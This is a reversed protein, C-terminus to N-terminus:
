GWMGRWWELSFIYRTLWLTCAIVVGSFAWLGVVGMGMLFPYHTIGHMLFSYGFFFFLYGFFVLTGAYVPGILLVMLVRLLFHKANITM